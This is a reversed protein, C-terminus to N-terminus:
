KKYAKHYAMMRNATDPVMWESAMSKTLTAEAEQTVVAAAEVLSNARSIQTGAIFALLVAIFIAVYKM